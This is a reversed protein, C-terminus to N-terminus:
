VQHLLPKKEPIYSLDVDQKCLPCKTSIFLWQGICYQHYEHGCQMRVISDKNLGAHCITCMEDDDGKAKRDIQNNKLFRRIPRSRVFYRGRMLLYDCCPVMRFIYTWAKLLFFLFYQFTKLVLMACILHLTWAQNGSPLEDWTTPRELTIMSLGGLSFQVFFYNMYMVGLVPTLNLRRAWAAQILRAVPDMVGIKYNIVTEIIWSAFAIAVFYNARISGVFADGFSGGFLFITVMILNQSILEFKYVFDLAAAFFEDVVELDTLASTLELEDIGHDLISNQSSLSPHSEM